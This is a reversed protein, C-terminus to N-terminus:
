RRANAGFGGYSAMEALVERFASLREAGLREAWRAETEALAKRGAEYAAHGREAPRAKDGDVEVYGRAELERVVAWMMDTSYGAQAALDPVYSGAGEIDRFVTTATQPLDPYGAASLADYVETVFVRFADVLHDGM